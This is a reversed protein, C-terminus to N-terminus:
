VNEGKFPIKTTIYCIIVNRAAIDVYLKMMLDYAAVLEHRSLM